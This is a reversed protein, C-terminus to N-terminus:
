RSWGHGEERREQEREGSGGGVDGPLRGILVGLRDVPQFGPQPGRGVVAADQELQRLSRASAPSAAPASRSRSRAM